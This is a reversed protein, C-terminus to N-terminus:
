GCVLTVDHTHAADNSSVITVSQGQALLQFDSATVVVTHPHPSTGQINYTAQVAAEVDARPVVIEHGHNVSITTGVGNPCVGGAADPGAADPQAADIGGDGDDGCAVLQSVVPIAFIAGGTRLLFDRRKM